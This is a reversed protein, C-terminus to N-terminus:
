SKKRVLFTGVSIAKIQNERNYSPNLKLYSFNLVVSLKDLNKIFRVYDTFKGELVINAPLTLYESDGSKELKSYYIQSIASFEVLKLNYQKCFRTFETKVRNIENITFAKNQMETVLGDLSDVIANIEKTKRIMEPLKNMNQKLEARKNSIDEMKGDIYSYAGFYWILVVLLYVGLLLFFKTRNTVSKKM